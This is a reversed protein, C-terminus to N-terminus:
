ASFYMKVAARRVRWSRRRALPERDFVSLSFYRARRLFCAGAVRRRLCVGFVSFIRAARAM